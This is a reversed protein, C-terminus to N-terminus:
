GLVRELMSIYAAKHANIDFRKVQLFNDEVIDQNPIYFQNPVDIICYPHLADRAIGVNRSIIPTKTAAAELIAQPGGEFRSAVVYLNCAQYMSRLKEVPSREFFTHEIGAATLRGIVYERRWGGLLVHINNNRKCLNEILDCFLDPGKELKPNGTAGETDRQFSGIIFRDAPLGLEDRATERGGPFWITPDYWYCAVLIPKKTIRGLLSATYVNPVHYADVFQDRLNFETLKADDFKEPVIHHVTLMVKKSDLLEQPVHNWCWGALLWIVDADAPNDVCIEPNHQNWEAAIRDCIWDENPALVYVKM